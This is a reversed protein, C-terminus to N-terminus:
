SVRLLGCESCKLFTRKSRREPFDKWRPDEKEVLIQAWRPLEHAELLAIREETVDDFVHECESM